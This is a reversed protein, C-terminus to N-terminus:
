SPYHTPALALVPTFPAYAAPVSGVDYVSGAWLTAKAGYNPAYDASVTAGPMAPSYASLRQKGLQLRQSTLRRPFVSVGPM